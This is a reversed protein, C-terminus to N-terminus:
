RRTWFVLVGCASGTANSEMHIKSAGSYGEVADINDVWLRDELNVTATTGLLVGDVLPRFRLGDGSTFCAGISDG